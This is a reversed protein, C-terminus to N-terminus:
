GAKNRPGIFQNVARVSAPRPATVRYVGFGSHRPEHAAGFLERRLASRIGDFGLIVDYRGEGGDSFSM